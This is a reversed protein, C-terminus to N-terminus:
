EVRELKPNLTQVSNPTLPQSPGDAAIELPSLCELVPRRPPTVSLLLLFLVLCTSVLSGTFPFEFEGPALGTWWIMEPSSPGDAAIELPFLRELEKM